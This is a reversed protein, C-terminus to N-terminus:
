KLGVTFGLTIYFGSQSYDIEKETVSVRRSTVTDNVSQNWAGAREVDMTSNQYVYGARIDVFHGGSIMIQTGLVFGVRPALQNFFSEQIAADISYITGDDENEYSDAELSINRKGNLITTGLEIGGYPIFRHNSFGKEHYYYLNLSTNIILMKEDITIKANKYTHFGSGSNDYILDGEYLSEDISSFPYYTMAIGTRFGRFDKLFDISGLLPMNDLALGMNYEITLMPMGMHMSELKTDVNTSRYGENRFFIENNLIDERGAIWEPSENFLHYGGRVTFESLYVFQRAMISSSNIILLLLLIRKLYKLKLLKM